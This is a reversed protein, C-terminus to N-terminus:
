SIEIYHLLPSVFNPLNLRSRVKILLMRNLHKLHLQGIIYFLICKFNVMVNPMLLASMSDIEEPYGSDAIYGDEEGIQSTDPTSPPIFKFTSPPIYPGPTGTETLVPAPGSTLYNRSVSRIFDLIM